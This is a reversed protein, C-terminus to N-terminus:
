SRSSIFKCCSNPSGSLESHNEIPYNRDTNKLDVNNIFLFLCLQTVSKKTKINENSEVNKNSEQGVAVGADRSICTTDVFKALVNTQLRSCSTM